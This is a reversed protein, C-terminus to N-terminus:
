LVRANYHVIYHLMNPKPQSVKSRCEVSARNSERGRCRSDQRKKKGEAGGPSHQSIVTLCVLVTEKWIRELVDNMLRGATEFSTRRDKFVFIPWILGSIVSNEKNFNDIRRRSLSTCNSSEV